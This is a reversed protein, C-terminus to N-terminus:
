KLRAELEAVAQYWETPNQSDDWLGKLESNTRIRKISRLASSVLDPSPAAAFRAVFEAVEEPLEAAPHQCLAAVVEAAAIAISCDPAEVYDEDDTIRSFAEELISTDDAEALEVVWDAADDNDFSGADSAGM